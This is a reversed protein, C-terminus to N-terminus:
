KFLSLSMRKSKQRMNKFLGSAKDIKSSPALRLSERGESPESSTDSTSSALTMDNEDETERLPAPSSSTEPQPVRFYADVRANMARNKDQAMMSVSTNSDTRSLSGRRSDRRLERRQTSLPVSPTRAFGGIAPSSDNGVLRFESSSPEWDDCYPCFDCKIEWGSLALKSSCNALNASPSCPSHLHYWRHRCPGLSVNLEAVCM